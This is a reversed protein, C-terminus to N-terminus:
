PVHVFRGQFVHVVTKNIGEQPISKCTVIFSHTGHGGTFQKIPALTSTNTLPKLTTTTTTSGDIYPDYVVINVSLDGQLSVNKNRNIFKIKNQYWIYFSLWKLIM